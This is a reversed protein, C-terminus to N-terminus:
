RKQIRQIVCWLYRNFKIHLQHFDNCSRTLFWPLNFKRVVRNFCSM